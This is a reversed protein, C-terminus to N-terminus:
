AHAAAVAQWVARRDGVEDVIGQWYLLNFLASLAAMAIRDAGVADGARAIGVLGSGVIRSPATRGACARTVLRILPHRWHFERYALDLTRHGKDRHMVVDGRGYQYPTRRWSPFSRRPYHTVRAGPLFVFRMGRDNLRFGLEIDEARAFTADFGGADLFRDRPLAANATFFQRPTCAYVGELMARYQALLKDEEWRIWVPRAWGRPPLMPGISVTDPSLGQAEVHAAILDREPVVDDDLFVILDGRAEAVGRNRAAGAGGHRQSFSRLRYSFRAQALEDLTGDTSGDDVVIVEFDGTPHTQEALADLLRRLSERREYTPVVVSVRPDPREAAM